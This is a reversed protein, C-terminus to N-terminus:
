CSFIELGTAISAISGSRANQLVSSCLDYRTEFDSFVALIGVLSIEVCNRNWGINENLLWCFRFSVESAIVCSMFETTGSALICM